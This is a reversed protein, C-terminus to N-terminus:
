ARRTILMVSDGRPHTRDDLLEVQAGVTEAISTLLGAHYHFPEVDSYTRSGDEREIPDFNAPDPNDAWAAFFRGGPALARVVNAIARAVSNLPLRRFLSSAIALDFPPAASLDFEENSLFHGLEPRVGAQPLEIQVGAIYLEMNREFGWYHRPEMYRLLHSAASLSGCGVDLVYHDPRLGHRKLFDFVWAGEESWKGGTAMRHWARDLDQIESREVRSVPADAAGDPSAPGVADHPAVLDLRHYEKLGAPVSGDYLLRGHDLLCVRRCVAQIASASHSVFVLTKGRAQFSELTAMCQRQFDADGVAFIEDLLLVDPDLNAAIAFGLRMHMGSSYNKLPVDMFHRLGSYAVVEDYVELAQARSLGHISANLLVNEQGTLEPHFGTGLEIMSGIRAGRAVLLEGSTPRHIGAILKLMTSKGSGNRGILGVSEGERIAFSVARLAWFEEVRDRRSGNFLGLVKVKLEAAPNHNLYFRKSLERAEIVVSL